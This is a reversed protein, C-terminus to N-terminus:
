CHLAPGTVMNAINLKMAIRDSLQAYTCFSITDLVLRLKLILKYHKPLITLITIPQHVAGQLIVNIRTLVMM